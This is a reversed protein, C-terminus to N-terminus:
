QLDLCGVNGKSSCGTITKMGNWVERMNNGRLKKELKKSYEEKAKRLSTKVENQVAKMKECNNNKFVRKKKNLVKKM